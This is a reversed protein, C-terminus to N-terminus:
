SRLESAAIFTAGLGFEVRSGSSSVMAASLRWDHVQQRVIAAPNDNGYGTSRVGHSQEVGQLLKRRSVLPVKVHGVHIVPQAAPLGVRIGRKNSFKGVTRPQGVGNM